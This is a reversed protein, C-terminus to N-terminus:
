QEHSSFYSYFFYDLGGTFLARSYNHGYDFWEQHADAVCYNQTSVRYMAILLGTRDIGHACHLYIPRPTKPDNLIKLVQQIKDAAEPRIYSFTNLPFSYYNLGPINAVIFRQNEASIESPAEGPEMKPLWEHWNNEGLFNIGTPDNYDGGQLNIVTKIGLQALSQAQTLNEVRGGRYLFHTVKRFNVPLKQNLSPTLEPAEIEVIPSQCQHSLAFGFNPLLVILTKLFWSATM